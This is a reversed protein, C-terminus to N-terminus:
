VGKHDPTKEVGKGHFGDTHSSHRTLTFPGTAPASESFRATVPTGEPPSGPRPVQRCCGPPHTM